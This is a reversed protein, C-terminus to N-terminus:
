YANLLLPHTGDRQFDRRYVISIPIRAGDQAAAWLRESQYQSADYEPVEQRKRLVSERRGVDYDFVSNPTVLSQYNYRYVNTDYEANQGPGVSYVPEPYAIRHSGGGAFNTLTLQPLANER